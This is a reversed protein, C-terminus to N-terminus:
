PRGTGACLAQTRARPRLGRRTWCPRAIATRGTEGEPWRSPRPVRFEYRVERSLLEARVGATLAEDMVKRHCVCSERGVHTALEEDYLVRM